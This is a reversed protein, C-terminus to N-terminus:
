SQALRSFQEYCGVLADEALELFGQHAELASRDIRALVAVKCDPVENVLTEIGSSCDM